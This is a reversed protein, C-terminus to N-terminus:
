NQTLKRSVSIKQFGLWTSESFSCGQPYAMTVNRWKNSFSKSFVRSHGTVVGKLNKTNLFELGGIMNMIFNASLKIDDDLYIIYKHNSLVRTIQSLIHNVAGQNDKQHTINLNAYSLNSRAFELTDLM